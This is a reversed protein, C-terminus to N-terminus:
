KVEEIVDSIAESAIKFTSESPNKVETPTALVDIISSKNALDVFQSM